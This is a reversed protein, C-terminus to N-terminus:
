RWEWHLLRPRIGDGIAWAQYPLHTGNFQFDVSSIRVLEGPFKKSPDIEYITAGIKEPSKRSLDTTWAKAWRNMYFAELPGRNGLEEDSKKAIIYEKMTTQFKITM